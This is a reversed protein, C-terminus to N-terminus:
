QPGGEGGYKETCNGLCTASLRIHRDGQERQVILISVVGVIDTEYELGGFKLSRRHSRRHTTKGFFLVLAHHELQRSHEFSCTVRCDFVSTTNCFAERSRLLM